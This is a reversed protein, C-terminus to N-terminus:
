EIISFGFFFFSVLDSDSLVSPTTDASAINSSEGVQQVTSKPLDDVIDAAKGKVEEEKEIARISEWKLREKEAKERAEASHARWSQVQAEYEAKWSAELDSTTVLESTSIHQDENSQSESPTIAPPASIPQPAPPPPSPLATFAHDLASQGFLIGRETITQFYSSM